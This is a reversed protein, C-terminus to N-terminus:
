YCVLYNTDKFYVELVNDFYDGITETYDMLYKEINVYDMLENGISDKLYELAANECYEWDESTDTDFISAYEVIAPTSKIENQILAKTIIADREGLEEELQEDLEEELQEDLNEDLYGKYKEILDEM